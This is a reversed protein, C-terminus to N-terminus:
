AAAPARSGRGATEVVAEVLEGFLFFLQGFLGGFVVLVVGIILKVFLLLLGFVLLESLLLGVLALVKLLQFLVEGVELLLVLFHAVLVAHVLLLGVLLLSVLVHLLALLLDSFVLVLFGALALFGGGLPHFLHSLFHLVLHAVVGFFLRLLIDVAQAIDQIVEDREAEVLFLQHLVKPHYVLGVRAKHLEALGLAKGGFRDDVIEAFEITTMVTM